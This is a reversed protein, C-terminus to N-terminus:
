LYSDALMIKAGTTSFLQRCSIHSPLTVM